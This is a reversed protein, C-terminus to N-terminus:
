NECRGNWTAAGVWLQQEQSEPAALVETPSYLAATQKGFGFGVGDTHLHCEMADGIFMLPWLLVFLGVTHYM